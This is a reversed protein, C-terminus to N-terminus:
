IFYFLFIFFFVLSLLTDIMTKLEPPCDSDLIPNYKGKLCFFLYFYFYVITAAAINIKGKGDTFPNKLTVLEYL